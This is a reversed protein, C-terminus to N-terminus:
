LIKSYSQNKVNNDEHKDNPLPNANNSLCLSAKKGSYGELAYKM